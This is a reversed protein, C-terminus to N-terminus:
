NNDARWLAWVFLLLFLGGIIIRVFAQRRTLRRAHAIV